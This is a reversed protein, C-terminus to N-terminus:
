PSQFFYFLSTQIQRITQSQSVPKEPKARAAMSEIKQQQVAVSNEEVSESVVPKSMASGM